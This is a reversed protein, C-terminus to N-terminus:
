LWGKKSTKIMLLANLCFDPVNEKGQGIGFISRESWDSVAPWLLRLKTIKKALMVAKLPVRFNYGMEAIESESWDVQRLIDGYKDNIRKQVYDLRDEFTDFVNNGLLSNCERCSPVTEQAEFVGKRKGNRLFSVPVLHDRDTADLGCYVCRKVEVLKETKKM